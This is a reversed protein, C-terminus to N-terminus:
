IRNTLMENILIEYMEPSHGLSLPIYDAGQNNIQFHAEGREARLWGTWMQPGDVAWAGVTCGGWTKGRVRSGQPVDIFWLGGLTYM